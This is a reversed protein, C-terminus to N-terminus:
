GKLGTLIVEVFRALDREVNISLKNFEPQQLVFISNPSPHSAPWLSAVYLTIASALWVSDEKSLWFLASHLVASMRGYLKSLEEKEKTIANVSLNYEIVSAVMGLIQCLLPRNLFQKTMSTAVIRISSRQSGLENELEKIFNSFEEVFLQFLIEERSEFYRYINPKSIGANRAIENLGLEIPGKENVLQRATELIVTRRIEKEQPTRARQFDIM